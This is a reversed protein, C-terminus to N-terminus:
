VYSKDFDKLCEMQVRHYIYEAGVMIPPSVKCTVLNISHIHCLQM